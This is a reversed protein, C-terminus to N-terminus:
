ASRNETKSKESGVPVPKKPSRVEMAAHKATPLLLPRYHRRMCDRCRVLRLLFVVPVAEWLTKSQSPFVKSSGCYPCNKLGIRRV